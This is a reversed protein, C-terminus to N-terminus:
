SGRAAALLSSIQRQLSAPLPASTPVPGGVSSWSVLRGELDTVAPGLQPAAALAAFNWGTPDQGAEAAARATMLLVSSTADVEVEAASWSPTLRIPAGCIPEGGQDLLCVAFLQARPPLLSTPLSLSFGSSGPVLSGAAVPHGDLTQLQIQFHVSDPTLMGVHYGDPLFAHGSIVLLPPLNSFADTTPLSCGAAAVLIGPVSLLLRRVM